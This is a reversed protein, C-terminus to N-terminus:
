ITGSERDVVHISKIALRLGHASKRGHTTENSDMRGEASQVASIFKVGVALRPGPIASLNIKERNNLLCVMAFVARSAIKMGAKSSPAMGGKAGYPNHWFNPGRVSVSLVGALRGSEFFLYQIQRNAQAENTTWVSGCNEAL